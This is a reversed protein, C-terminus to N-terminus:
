WVNLAESTKRPPKLRLKAALGPPISTLVVMEGASPKSEFASM